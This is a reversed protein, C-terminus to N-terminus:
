PAVLHFLVHVIFAISVAIQSFAVARFRKEVGLQWKDYAKFANNNSIANRELRVFRQQATPRKVMTSPRRHAKNSM